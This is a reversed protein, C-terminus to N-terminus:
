HVQAAGCVDEVDDQTSMVAHHRYKRTTYKILGLVQWFSFTCWSLFLLFVTSILTM